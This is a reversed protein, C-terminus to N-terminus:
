RDYHNAWDSESFNKGWSPANANRKAEAKEANRRAIFLENKLQNERSVCSALMSMAFERDSPNEVIQAALRTQRTDSQAQEYQARLIQVRTEM